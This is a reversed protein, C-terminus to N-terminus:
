GLLQQVKAFRQLAFFNKQTEVSLDAFGTFMIPPDFRIMSINRISSLLVVETDVALNALTANESPESGCAHGWRM